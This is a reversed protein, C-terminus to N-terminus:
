LDEESLGLVTAEIANISTASLYPACAALCSQATASMDPGVILVPAQLLAAVREAYFNPERAAARLMRRWISPMENEAALVDAIQDWKMSGDPESPLKALYEEWSELM